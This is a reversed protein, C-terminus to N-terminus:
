DSPPIERKAKLQMLQANDYSDIIVCKYTRNLLSKLSDDCVLVKDNISFKDSDCIEIKQGKEAFKYKYFFLSGNYDTHYGKIGDLNMKENGRKLLYAENAELRKQGNPLTNGQSRNFM